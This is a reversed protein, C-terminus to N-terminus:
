IGYSSRATCRFMFIITGAIVTCCRINRRVSFEAVDKDEIGLVRRALGYLVEKNVKQGEFQKWGGSLIMKSGGPLTLHIGREEMQKLVFYAYSPFGLIRVPVAGHSYRCLRDM